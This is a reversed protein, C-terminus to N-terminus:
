YKQDTAIYIKHQPYPFTSFHQLRITSFNCQIQCKRCEHARSAVNNQANQIIM